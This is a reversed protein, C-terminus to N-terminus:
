LTIFIDMETKLNPRQTLPLIMRTKRIELAEKPNTKTPQIIGAM